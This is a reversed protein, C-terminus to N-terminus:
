FVSASDPTLDVLAYFYMTVTAGAQYNKVYEPETVVYGEVTNGDLRIWADKVQGSEGQRNGINFLIRAQDSAPFTYRQFGVRETATLEARVGYDKLLVSYYGPHAEEDQKDFRSRFGADSDRICM